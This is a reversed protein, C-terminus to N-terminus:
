YGTRMKPVDNVTEANISKLYSLLAKKMEAVREPMKAALDKSETADKLTNYLYSKGPQTENWKM